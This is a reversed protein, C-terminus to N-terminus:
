GGQEDRPSPHLRLASVQHPGGLEELAATQIRKRIACGPRASGIWTEIRERESM